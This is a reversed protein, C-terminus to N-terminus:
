IITASNIRGLHTLRHIFGRRFRPRTGIRIRPTPKKSGYLTFAWALSIPLLAIFFIWIIVAQYNIKLIFIVTEITTPSTSQYSSNRSLVERNSSEQIAPNRPKSLELTSLKSSGSHIENALIQAKIKREAERWEDITMLSQALLREFALRAILDIHEERLRNYSELAKLGAFLIITTQLLFLLLFFISHKNTNGM